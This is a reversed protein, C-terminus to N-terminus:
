KKPMRLGKVYGCSKRSLYRSIFIAIHIHLLRAVTLNSAEHTIHLECYSSIMGASTFSIKEM